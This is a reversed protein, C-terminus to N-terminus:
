LIFNWSIRKGYASDNNCVTYVYGHQSLSYIFDPWMRVTGIISFLALFINWLILPLRIEFKQRNHMLSKGLFVLGIYVISCIISIKWNDKMWLQWSDVYSKSEFYSEFDFIYSYVHIANSNISSNLRKFGFM